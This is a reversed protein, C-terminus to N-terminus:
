MGLAQKLLRAIPYHYYKKGDLWELRDLGTWYELLFQTPEHERRAAILSVVEEILSHPQGGDRLADNASELLLEGLDFEQAWEDFEAQHERYYSVFEPLRGPDALQIGWDQHHELDPLGLDAAAQSLRSNPKEAMVGVSAGPVM